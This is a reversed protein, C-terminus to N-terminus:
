AVLAAGFEVLQSGVPPMGRAVPCQLAVLATCLEVQLAAQPRVDPIGVSLFM